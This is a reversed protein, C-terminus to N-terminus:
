AFPNILPLALREFDRVNRTVLQCGYRQAIAAIYADNIPSRDPVHFRASLQAAVEDLPLIRHAFDPLLRQNLWDQLTQAAEPDRRKLQLIGINIEALSIVSLYLQSMKVQSFWHVVRTDARNKEIKRLESIINTDLLYM